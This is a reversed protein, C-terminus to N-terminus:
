LSLASWLTHHTLYSFFFFIFYLVTEIHLIFLLQFFILEEYEEPLLSFSIPNFHLRIGM